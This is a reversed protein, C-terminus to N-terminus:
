VSQMPHIGILFFFFHCGKACSGFDWGNEWISSYKWKGIIETKGLGQGIYNAPQHYYLKAFTIIQLGTILQITVNSIDLM